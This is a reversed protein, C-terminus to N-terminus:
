ASERYVLFWGYLRLNGTNSDSGRAVHTQVLLDGSDVAETSASFDAELLENVSGPGAAPGGLDAPTSGMDEGAARPLATVVLIFDTADAASGSYYALTHVTGNRWAPPRGVVARAYGSADPFSIFAHPKAVTASHGVSATGGVEVDGVGVWRRNEEDAVRDALGVIAHRASRPDSVFDYPIGTQAM